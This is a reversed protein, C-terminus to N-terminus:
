FFVSVRPSPLPLSQVSADVLWLIGLSGASALLFAHSPRERLAESPVLETWVKM